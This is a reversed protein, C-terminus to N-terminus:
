AATFIFWDGPTEPGAGCSDAGHGSELSPSRMKTLQEFGEVGGPARWTASRKWGTV